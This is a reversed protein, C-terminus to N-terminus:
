TRKEIVRSTCNSDHCSAECQGPIGLFRGARQGVFETAKRIAMNAVTVLIADILGNAAASAPKVAPHGTWALRPLMGSDPPMARSRKPVILFGLAVAAGLSVWPYTKVYHKWDVMTRASAVMDEVDEDIECRLQQMRAQVSEAMRDDGM